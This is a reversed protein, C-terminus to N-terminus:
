TPWLNSSVEAAKGIFIDSPCPPKARPLHIDAAIAAPDFMMQHRLKGLEAMM